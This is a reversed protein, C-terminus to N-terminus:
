AANIMSFPILDSPFNCLSVWNLVILNFLETSTHLYEKIKESPFFVKNNLLSLLSGADGKKQVLVTLRDGPIFKAKQRDPLNM